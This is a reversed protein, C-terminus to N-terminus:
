ESSGRRESLAKLGRHFAVRVAGPSINLREATEDISHGDISIATVVERTRGDLGGVARRVDAAVLGSMDPEVTAADFHDSIDVEIRRGHKRFADIAKYRAIAFLWPEVPEDTRWTHRKAHVAMLIEQVLDEADFGPLGPPLKRACFGRMMRAVRDLFRGYCASDGDLSARLLGGLDDHAPRTGPKM